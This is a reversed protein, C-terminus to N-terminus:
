SPRTTPRRSPSSAPSDRRRSGPEGRLQDLTWVVDSATLPDGDHFTVGEQLTLTYTLRDESIELEALGPWIEGDPTAKVLTEYINGLLVQDLAAGAQHLIDLNTPELVFGAVVTADPDGEPM